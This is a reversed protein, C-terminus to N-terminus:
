NCAAPCLLHTMAVSVEKLLWDVFCMEVVSIQESLNLWNLCLYTLREAIEAAEASKLSSYRCARNTPFARVCDAIQELTASVGKAREEPCLLAPFARFIEVFAIVHFLDGTGSGAPQV